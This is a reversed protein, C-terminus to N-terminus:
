KVSPLHALMKLVHQKECCAEELHAHYRDKRIRWAEIWAVSPKEGKAVRTRRQVMAEGWLRSAREIAQCSNDLRTQIATRLEVSTHCLHKEVSRSLVVLKAKEIQAPPTTVTNRVIHLLDLGQIIWKGPDFQYWHIGNRFDSPFRHHFNHYGEGNTLLAVWFNDRATESDSYPRNGYLHALSNVFFTAHHIFFIRLFGGWLLGGLPDDFAAGVLTPFGLGAVVAILIHYRSQWQVRPNAILDPCSLYSYNAPDHYFIWLIHAWLGGKMIHYPDKETDVFRHHLRHDNAWKLASNEFAWAGFFLLISEIAPSTEFSRHSFCRHYGVTISLGVLMYTILFLLPQWFEVPKSLSYVLTGGIGILPTVALFTISTWNKTRQM